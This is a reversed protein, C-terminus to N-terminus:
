QFKYDYVVATSIVKEVLRKLYFRRGELQEFTVEKKNGFYRVKVFNFIGDDTYSSYNDTITFQYDDEWILTGNFGKTGWVTARAIDKKHLFIKDNSDENVEGVRFSDYQADKEVNIEIKAKNYVPPTFLIETTVGDISVNELRASGAFVFLAKHPVVLEYSVKSFGGINRSKEQLSYGYDYALIPNNLISLYINREREDKYKINEIRNRERQANALALSGYDISTINSNVNIQGSVTAQVNISKSVNYYNSYQSFSIFPFLTLFILLITKM